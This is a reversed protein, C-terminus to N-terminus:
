KDIGELYNLFQDIKHTSVVYRGHGQKKVFGEKSLVSLTSGVAELRQGLPITLESPRVQESIEPNLSHAIYRVVLCLKLQDLKSLSKDDIIVVGSKTIRGFKLVRQAMGEAQHASVNEEVIFQNRIDNSM